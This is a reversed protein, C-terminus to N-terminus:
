LSLHKDMLLRWVRGNEFLSNLVPKQLERMNWWVFRKYDRALNTGLAKDYTSINHLTQDVIFELYVNLL